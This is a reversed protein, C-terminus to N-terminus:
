QAAFSYTLVASATRGRGPVGPVEEFDVAGINDVHFSAELSKLGPIRYSLSLSSIFYDRRNTDRLLNPMEHRIENEVELKLSELIEFKLSGTIRHKPFNLAYFSADVGEGSYNKRKHLYAYGLEVDLLGDGSWNVTNEIGTTGTNVNEASRAAVPLLDGDFTWDVLNRDYRYFVASGVECGDRRTKMGIEYNTGVTRGLGANGRFLGASPSSSLATYGPVQTTQSIDVYVADTRGSSERKLTLGGAPSLHTGNRNTDDLALGAEIIMLRGDAFSFKRGPVVAGRYYNRSSFEGWNLSTSELDDGAYIAQYRVSNAGDSSSGNLPLIWFRSTHMYPNFLDPDYRDFDYNDENRRFTPSFSLYDDGGFSARHSIQLLGTHLDEAEVGSDGISDHLQKPAYLYPWTFHKQGVGALLATSSSGHNLQLRGSFREFNHGGHLRPSGGESRFFDFDVKVRGGDFVRRMYAEQENLSFDGTGSSIVTWSDEFDNLDFLAASSVSNFGHVFHDLGTAAASPKLMRPSVPLELLYHGTQPDMLPASGLIVGSNEFTGGRISLDGQADASNRTQIDLRPDFELMSAPYSAPGTEDPRVVPPATVEVVIPPFDEAEVATPFCGMLFLVFISIVRM